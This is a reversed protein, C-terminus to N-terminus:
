DQKQIKRKKRRKTELEEWSIHCKRQCWPLHPCCHTAWRYQWHSVQALWKRSVCLGMLHTWNVEWVGINIFPQLSLYIFSCIPSHIFLSLFHPLMSPILLHYFLVPLASYHHQKLHLPSLAVTLSKYLTMLILSENIFSVPHSLYYPECILTLANNDYTM